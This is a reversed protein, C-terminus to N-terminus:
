IKLYRNKPKIYIKEFILTVFFQKNKLKKLAMYDGELLAM